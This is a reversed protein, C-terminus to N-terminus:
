WGRMMGGTRVKRRVRNGGAIRGRLAEPVEEEDSSDGESSSSSEEEDKQGHGHGTVSNWVSAVVSGGQRLIDKPLSSLTPFSSPPPAQSSRLAPLAPNPFPFTSNTIGTADSGKSHASHASGADSAADSDGSDDAAGAAQTEPVLPPPISHYAQTQPLQSPQTM